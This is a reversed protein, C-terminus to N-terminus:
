EHRRRASPIRRRRRRPRVYVLFFILAAVGVGVVLSIALLPEEAVAQPGEEYYYPVVEPEGYAAGSVIFEVVMTSLAGTAVSLVLSFLLNALSALCGRRPVRVVSHTTLNSIQAPRAVGDRGRVAQGRVSLSVRDGDELVGSVKRGRMEVPIREGAESQLVFRLVVNAGEQEIRANHVTGQTEAM